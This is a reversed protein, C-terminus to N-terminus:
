SEDESSEGLSFRTKFKPVCSPVVVDAVSTVTKIKNDTVISTSKLGLQLITSSPGNMLLERTPHLITSSDVFIRNDWKPNMVDFNKIEAMKPLETLIYKFIHNKKEPKDKFAPSTYLVYSNKKSDLVETLGMFYILETLAEKKTKKHPSSEDSNFGHKPLGFYQNFTRVVMYKKTINRSKKFNSSPVEVILWVYSDPNMDEKQLIHAKPVYVHGVKIVESKTQITPPKITEPKKLEKSNIIEVDINQEPEWINDYENWPIFEMLHYFDINKFNEYMDCDKLDQVIQIEFDSIIDISDMIKIIVRIEDIQYKLLQFPINSIINNKILFNKILLIKQQEASLIFNFISSNSKSSDFKVSAGHPFLSNFQTFNKFDLFNSIDFDFDFNSTIINISM